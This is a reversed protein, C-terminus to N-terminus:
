GAYRRRTEIKQKQREWLANALDGAVKDPESLHLIHKLKEEGLDIRYCVQLLKEFDRDLLYAIAKGLTAIAEHEDSIEPTAPIEFDKQVLAYTEQLISSPM